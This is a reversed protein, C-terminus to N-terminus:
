FNATVGFKATWSYEEYQLLRRGSNFNQYAFYPEDTINIWEAFIRINDTLKYKASIDLQFHDAVYRDEGADDGLEDLYKDRYTGAVRLSIPGKEYGLVANFTHNSSAPLPITRPDTLDGDALVTGEADTYTYNFQALLGDFPEPLFSFAQSYSFEFGRVKAKDGNIPQKVEDLVIGNFTVDDTVRDVIYNKIDKYFFGASVAANRGFYYEASLDLNWAEYPMLDANGFEGENDEIVITPALKSIKPRMLSKYGGARLVVNRVPEYRV